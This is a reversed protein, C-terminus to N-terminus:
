GIKWEVVNNFIGVGHHGLVQSESVGQLKATAVYAADVYCVFAFAPNEALAVQFKAYAVAREEVVDTRRAVQLYKDVDANTYGNYNAGKDTGFVKYTHDDADFPSGWGILYAEQGAWDIKLPVDVKVDIGIEQLQQAVAQAIDKRVQDDASVSITFGIKEGDRYWFGDDGMTCGVSELHAKAKEPNYEYKEVNENNFINRQLPSYAAIGCGLLVSDVITQRDIGYCIAPIIDSNKKWYENWFNFMVGRYDSTQMKYVRMEGGADNEFTQAAKPSLQALDLEGSRLQMAKANDDPVIKFVVTEINAMGKFYAENRTLTIAQGEEWSSLKYAGTGIPNRFFDSTQMDEGALLHEPLIAITMYDLFAVNPAALEFEINYDDVVNISKVDEFNAVNESGNDPNMIAEVTFKVDDATFKEGDHWTANEVLKFSYTCTKKDFSWKEALAPVVQNESDHATLGDFLLLNIEGHEDMAPNIRTYDGSGYILTNKKIEENLDSNGGCGTLVTVFSFALVLIWALKRKMTEEVYVFLVHSKKQFSSFGCAKMAYFRFINFRKITYIENDIPGSRSAKIRKM